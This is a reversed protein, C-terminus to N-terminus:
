LDIEVTGEAEGGGDEFQILYVMSIADDGADIVEVRMSQIGPAPVDLAEVTVRQRDDSIFLTAEGLLESTFRLPFLSRLDIVITEPNPDSLGFVLGGLDVTVSMTGAGTDVAISAAVSGVSGFTTNEWDGGYDGVLELAAAITDALPDETTTAAATTTTTPETTTTTAAITTTTSTTAETTAAQTTTVAATDAVTTPAADDDSCAALVLSLAALLALRRM